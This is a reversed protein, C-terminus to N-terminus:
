KRHVVAQDVHCSGCLYERSYWYPDTTPPDVATSLREARSPTGRRIDLDFEDLRM